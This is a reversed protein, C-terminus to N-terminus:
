WAASKESLDTMGRSSIVILSKREFYGFSKFHFLITFGSSISELIYLIKFKCLISELIYLIKLWFRSSAYFQNLFTYFWGRVYKKHVRRVSGELVRVSVMEERANDFRKKKILFMRIM